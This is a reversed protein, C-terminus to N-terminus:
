REYPKLKQELFIMVKKKWKGHKHFFIVVKRAVLFEVLWSFCFHVQTISVLLLFM